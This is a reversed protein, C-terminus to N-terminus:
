QVALKSIDEYEISKLINGKHPGSKLELKCSFKHEYMQLLIATNGRYAGNVIMVLKGLSPIVTELHSQDLLLKEGTEIMKVKASYNNKVSLVVGKSKYFNSGLKKTIIKVVIGECIWYDKRNVKEKKKEEFEMIEELASKRKLNKKKSQVPMSSSKAFFASASKVPATDQNSKPKMGLSLTVKEDEDVRKLDTPKVTEKINGTSSAREIQQQIFRANREEDDLDLKEKKESAQQRKIAEPDRDIYTIFWGKETEDAICHGEKGMWKVFETLTEWQTANMHTHERDSIYEQYVNNAQVRKTGFRRGLISLGFTSM